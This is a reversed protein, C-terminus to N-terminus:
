HLTAAWVPNRGSLWRLQCSATTETSFSGWFSRPHISCRVGAYSFQVATRLHFRAARTVRLALVTLLHRATVSAGIELHTFVTGIDERGTPLHCYTRLASALQADWRNDVPLPLSSQSSRLAVYSPISWRFGQPTKLIVARFLTHAQLLLHRSLDQHTLWSSRRGICLRYLIVVGRGYPTLGYTM